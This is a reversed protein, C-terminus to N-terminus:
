THRAPPHGLAMAVRTRTLQVDNFAAAVHALAVIGSSDIGIDNTVLIRM